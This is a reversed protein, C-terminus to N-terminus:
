RTTQLPASVQSGLPEAAAAPAASSDAPAAVSFWHLSFAAVVNFPAEGPPIALASDAPPAAPVPGAATSQAQTAAAMLSDPVAALRAGRIQTLRPQSLLEAMLAGVDHFRGAVLVRLGDVQFEGEASPPLPQYSHVRVGLRRAAGSLADVFPQAGTAPDGHPPVRVALLDAERRSRRRMAEVSDAGMSVERARADRNAVRMAELEAERTALAAARPRYTKWFWMGSLVGAALLVALAVRSRLYPSLTM